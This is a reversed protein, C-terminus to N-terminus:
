RSAAGRQVRPHRQARWSKLVNYTDVLLTATTPTFNATRAQLGRIRQRVDAGVCHAMTGGRPCATCSTRWARLGHGVCAASTRRARASCPPMAAGAGTPLRVGACPRGQAARVVRNAKTAILSQHNLTLCCVVDRHAAGRHGPRPGDHDARAPLHAHGGPVAWIDGTFRYIRLLYDLFGESFLRGGACIRSTTRTLIRAAPYVRVAQELGAAIAFGGGDPVMASSSTLIAHRQNRRDRGRLYGNAM